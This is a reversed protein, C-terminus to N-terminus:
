TRLPAYSEAVGSVAAVVADPDCGYLDAGSFPNLELLRLEGDCDALDLVYVAEPAELVDAIEQARAAAREAGPQVQARRSAEYGSGAVVRGNAVVFRWEEGIARVPAVVVPLNPDDYYFGHDLAGLSIGELQCVRGSFPKLPSDPRM